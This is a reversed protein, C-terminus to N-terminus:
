LSYFPLDNQEGTGVYLKFDIGREWIQRVFTSPADVCPALSSSSNAPRPHNPSSQHLSLWEKLDDYRRAWNWVSKALCFVNTFTDHITLLIVTVSSESLWFM